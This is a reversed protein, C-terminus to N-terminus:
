LDSSLIPEKCHIWGHTDVVVRDREGDGDGDWDEVRAEVDCHPITFCFRESGPVRVVVARDAEGALARRVGPPFMEALVADGSAHRMQDAESVFVRLHLATDRPIVLRKNLAAVFAFEHEVCFSRLRGLRVVGGREGGNGAGGGGGIGAGTSPPSPAPEFRSLDLTELQGAAAGLAAVLDELTFGTAGCCCEHLALARLAGYFAPERPVSVGSLALTRLRTPLAPLSTERKTRWEVPLIALEELAPLPNNFLDVIAPPVSAGAHTTHCLRLARIRPAHPALLASAETLTHSPLAVLHLDILASTARTLATRLYATNASVHIVRWLSSAACAVTHWHTCVLLLQMWATPRSTKRCLHAVTLFIETLLEVPLSAISALSTKNPSM